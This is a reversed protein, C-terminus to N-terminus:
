LRLDAERKLDLAPLSELWARLDDRLILTRRGSKRARLRGEKIAAYLTTKRVGATTIAQPITFALPDSM